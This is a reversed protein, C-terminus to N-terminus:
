LEFAIGVIHPNSSQVTIMKDFVVKPGKVLVRCIDVFEVGETSREGREM